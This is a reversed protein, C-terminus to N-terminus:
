RENREERSPIIIKDVVPFNNRNELFDVFDLMRKQRDIEKEDIKVARKKQTKPVSTANNKRIRVPKGVQVSQPKKGTKKFNTIISSIFERDRETYIVPLVVLDIGKPEKIHGM